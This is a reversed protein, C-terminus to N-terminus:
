VVRGCDCWVLGVISHRRVRRLTSSVLVDCNWSVGVCCSLLAVGWRVEGVGCCLSLHLVIHFPVFGIRFAPVVWCGVAM